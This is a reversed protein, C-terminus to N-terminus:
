AKDGGTAQFGISEAVVYTPQRLIRVHMRALYEGIIGLSLLQTGSFIAIISALFPFGAVSTGQVLYRGVVFALIALGFLSTVFGLMSILRLPRTSYGTVMDVALRVLRALGYTSTGQQRPDHQVEVHTFRDTTWALMADLSVQPGVDVAFGDRLSTRFARFSTARPVGGTTLRSLVAHIRRSGERRWRAQAVTRPVGYVVDSETSALRTLLAPIEEPPNQLDDDVTVIISLSAARVGALLAAHQGANRGFRLARVERREALRRVRSWSDPGSGDDVLILEHNVDALVRHTRDCLEDLSATAGYVPVVISVGEGPATSPDDVL